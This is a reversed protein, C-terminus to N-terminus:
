CAIRSNPNTCVHGCRPGGSLLGNPTAKWAASLFPSEPQKHLPRLKIWGLNIALFCDLWTRPTGITFTRPISTQWGNRCNDARGSRRFSFSQRSAKCDDRPLGCRCRPNPFSRHLPYFRRLGMGAPLQHWRGSRGATRPVVRSPGGTPWGSASQSSRGLVPLSGQHHPLARTRLFNTDATFAYHEWYHLCYWANSGRDQLWGQGGWINHSTRIDFGRVRDPPISGNYDKDQATIQRWPPLQSDTLDFFPQHCESLNTVEAQWYCMQININTHYDCHCIIHNNCWLGNLNAPLSGPRSSAILLYRGYQFMLSEFAPDYGDNDM